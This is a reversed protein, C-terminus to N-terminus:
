GGYIKNFKRSPYATKIIINKKEDIIFPVAYIYDRYFIIFIKQDSRSSNKLIKIYKKNLIIQEIESLDIGREKKLKRYKKEDWVIM